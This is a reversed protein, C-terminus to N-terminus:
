STNIKRWSSCRKQDVDLLTGHLIRSSAASFFQILKRQVWLRKMLLTHCGRSICLMQYSWQHLWQGPSKSVFSYRM